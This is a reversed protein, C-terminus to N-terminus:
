PAESTFLVVRFTDTDTNITCPTDYTYTRSLFRGAPDHPAPPEEMGLDELEVRPALALAVLGALFGRRKM